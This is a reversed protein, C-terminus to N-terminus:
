TAGSRESTQSYLTVRFTTLPELDMDRIKFSVMVNSVILFFVVKEDPKKNMPLGNFLNLVTRGTFTIPLIKKHLSNKNLFSFFATLTKRISNQRVALIRGKPKYLSDTM